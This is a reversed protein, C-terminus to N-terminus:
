ILGVEKFIKKWEKKSALVGNIEILDDGPPVMCDYYIEISQNCCGCKVLLRPSKVKTGKRRWVRPLFGDDSHICMKKNKIM